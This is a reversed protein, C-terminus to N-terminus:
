QAAEQLTRNIERITQLKLEEIVQKEIDQHEKALQLSIKWNATIQETRSLYKDKWDDENEKKKIVEYVTKAIGYINCRIRVLNSDDKRDTAALEKELNQLAKISQDLYIIFEDM